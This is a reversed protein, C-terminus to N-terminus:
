PAVQGPGAATRVEIVGVEPVVRLVEYVMNMQELFEGEKPPEDLELEFRSQGGPSSVDRVEYRMGVGYRQRLVRTPV